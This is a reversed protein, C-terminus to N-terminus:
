CVFVCILHFFWFVYRGMGWCAAHLRALGSLIVKAVNESVDNEKFMGPPISIRSNLSVLSLSFSLSLSLSLSKICTGTPGSASVYPKKIEAMAQLTWTSPIGGLGKKAWEDVSPFDGVRVRSFYLPTLLTDLRAIKVAAVRVAREALIFRPILDWIWDGGKGGMLYKVVHRMMWSKLALLEMQPVETVDTLKVIASVPHEDQEQNPKECFYPDKWRFVARRIQAGTESGGNDLKEEVYTDKVRFSIKASLSQMRMENLDGAFEPEEQRLLKANLKDPHWKKASAPMATSAGGGM